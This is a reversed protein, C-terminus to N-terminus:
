CAFFGEVWGCNNVQLTTGGSPIVSDDTSYWNNGGVFPQSLAQDLWIRDVQQWQDRAVWVQQTYPGGLQCSTPSPGSLRIQNDTPQNIQTIATIGIGVSYTFILEEIRYWNGDIPSIEQTLGQDLFLRTGTALQQNNPWVEVIGGFVLGEWDVLSDGTAGRLAGGQQVTNYRFQLSDSCNATSATGPGGARRGLLTYYYNHNM